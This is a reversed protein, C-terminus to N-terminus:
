NIGFSITFRHATGFYEGMENYPYDVRYENYRLGLGATFDEQDGNFIYGGRLYIM